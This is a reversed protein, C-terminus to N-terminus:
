DLKYTSGDATVSGTKEDIAQITKGNPLKDGVGLKTPLRTSPNTVLVTKGGPAIDVITIKVGGEERKTEPAAAKMAVGGVPKEEVPAAFKVGGEVPKVGKTPPPPLTASPPTPKVPVEAKPPAVPKHAQEPPKTPAAAAPAPAPAKPAPGDDVVVVSSSPKDTADREVKKTPSPPGPVPPPNIPLPVGHSDDIPLPSPMAQHPALAQIPASQAPAYDQDIVRVAGSQGKAAGVPLEDNEALGEIGFHNAAYMGAYVLAVGVVLAGVVTLMRIPLPPSPPTQLRAPKWDFPSAAPHSVVPRGLKMVIRDGIIARTYDDDTPLSLPNM